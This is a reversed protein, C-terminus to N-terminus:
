QDGDRGILKTLINEIERKLLNDLNQIKDVGIILKNNDLFISLIQSKTRISQKRSVKKQEKLEEQSLLYEKLFEMQKNRDLKCLARLLARTKIQENLLKNKVDNDLERVALTEVVSSKHLGLKDAIEQTSKCVGITLLNSYANALEIPHLDKRQINEIIAIEEAKKRDHIIICPVVALGLLKAARLRREGSVVEYMGGTNDESPIITLPQRIGHDKITSALAAISEDDFHQRAQHQFPVLKEIPINYYEGKFNETYVSTRNHKEINVKPQSYKIKAKDIKM